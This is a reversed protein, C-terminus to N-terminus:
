LILTNVFTNQIINATIKKIITDASQSQQKDHKQNEIQTTIIWRSQNTVKLKNLDYM